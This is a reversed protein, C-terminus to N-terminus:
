GWKVRSHSLEDLDRGRIKARKQCRIIGIENRTSRLRGLHKRAAREQPIQRGPVLTAVIQAANSRRGDLILQVAAPRGAALARSFDPGIRLVMLVSRSDIAPAIESAGRLSRVEAFNTSGEFGARLDRALTGYDENLVAIRVNKLELTAAVSFVLMQVLPPVILIYRSKPDRWIALLEKVILSFLRQRM